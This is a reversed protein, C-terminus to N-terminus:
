KTLYVLSNHDTSAKICVWSFLEKAHVRIHNVEIVDFVTSLNMRGCFGINISLSM